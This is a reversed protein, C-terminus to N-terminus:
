APNLPTDQEIAWLIHEPQDGGRKADEVARVLLANYHLECLRRRECVLIKLQCYGIAGRVSRVVLM